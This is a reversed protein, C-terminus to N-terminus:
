NIIRGSKDLFPHEETVKPEGFSSASILSFSFSLALILILFLAFVSLNITKCRM